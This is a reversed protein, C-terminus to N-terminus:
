SNYEDLSDETFIKSAYLALNILDQDSFNKTLSLESIKEIFNKYVKDMSFLNKNKRGYKEFSSLVKLAISDWSFKKSQENGFQILNERFQNDTLVLYLKKSISHVDFPDFLAEENLVVEILSTSKSAIVPASCKMAELAPLGFGEYWSPFVFCSCLNYLLVLEENTVYGTFVTDALSLNFKKCIRQLSLVELESLKGAFVLQYKHIIQSPLLSFAEILRCLNKREDAGGTYLVFPKKINFKEFVKFRENNDIKIKVFCSDAATSVNIVNNIDLNLHAIAEKTSFESIALLCSAKQLFNIKDFYYKRYKSDQLYYKENLLPILDYLTVSTPTDDLLGISVVSNDSFGEFLSFIHIIDANLTKLFAERLLLAGYHRWQNNEINEAIPTPAHWICINEEPLLGYFESRIYNETNQILGNLVLIVENDQRNKVIAKALSMTYRGIGRFRSETQAGQMDLVIRM